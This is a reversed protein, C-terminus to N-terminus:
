TPDGAAGRAHALMIREAEDADGRRVADLLEHHEFYRGDLVEGREVRRRLIAARQRFSFAHVTSLQRMLVSNGCANELDTHFERLELLLLGATDDPYAAGA